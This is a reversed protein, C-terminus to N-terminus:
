RELIDQPKERGASDYAFQTTNGLPDSAMLCEQMLRCSMIYATM